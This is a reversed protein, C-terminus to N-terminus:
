RRLRNGKQLSRMLRIKRTNKWQFVSVLTKRSFETACVGCGDYFFSRSKQSVAKATDSIDAKSQLNLVSAFTFSCKFHALSSINTASFAESPMGGFFGVGVEVAAHLGKPSAGLCDAFSADREGGTERTQSSIGVM